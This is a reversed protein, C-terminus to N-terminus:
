RSKMGPGTKPLKARNKNIEVIIEDAREDYLAEKQTEVWAVLEDSGEKFLCRGAEWLYEMVHFVDITHIANPFLEGIYCALDNDGDTVVQVQKGDCQVFGRKNASRRAIAVAHRKAAYSAYVRKNIPGELTGDGSRKLTYVVVITAMKGNKSKDGKKRRKKKGRRKRVARNRHRQSGLHPNPKRKGRRKKLEEDTATPSAKSDIQIILVEGDDSPAPQSAFWDTTHRGFGLVTEEVTKQAPSWNLFLTLLGVTEAYRSSPPLDSLM